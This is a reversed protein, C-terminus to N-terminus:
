KQSHLQLTIKKIKRQKRIAVRALIEIEYIESSGLTTGLYKFTDFIHIRTAQTDIRM